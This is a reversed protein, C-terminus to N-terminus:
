PPYVKVIKDVVEIFSIWLHNHSVLKKKNQQKTLNGVIIKSTLCRLQQETFFKERNNLWNNSTNM